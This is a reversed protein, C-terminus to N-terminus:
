KAFVKVGKLHFFKPTQNVTGIKVFRATKPTKLDVLWQKEANDATFVQQWTQGDRSLWVRLNRTRNAMRDNRNLIELGIVPQDKELDITVWPSLEAKTHFSQKGDMTTLLTHNHPVGYEESLSSHTVSGSRSIWQWDSPVATSKEQVVPQRRKYPIGTALCAAEVNYLPTFSKDWFPNPEHAEEMAQRIKEIVEPHQSAVNTQEAEDNSLDYLEVELGNRRDNVVGKWQGVLLGCSPRKSEYLEWYLYKHQRQSEKQGLLTPLMSIGDVPGQVTEGTLEAMTPLFDWFASVHDSVTGAPVKGPWYAIMPSRVGGEYMDRKIGRLEGNTGFFEKTGGMGHAGNDSNFMILTDEAIGLKELLRKIRGIDRDMRTVMAAQVKFRDAPQNKGPEVMWDKDKYIGLDPVQWRTHPICYALYLFMPQDKHTTIWEIAEETMLDHSYDNNGKGKGNNLTVLEANRWLFDPYYNHARRQNLYGFFHDFGQMNPHGSNMVPDPVNEVVGGLGWKGIVATSYGARKALKAVTEIGEPLPTQGNPYGPSNARIHARGPHKGTMLSCRTPACVANGCYHRTFRMGQAAMADLEPTKIKEQGNYGVEGYGLDDALIYIVNPKEGASSFYGIAAVIGAAFHLISGKTRLRDWRSPPSPWDRRIKNM